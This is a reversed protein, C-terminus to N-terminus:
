RGGAPQAQAADIEERAAQLARTRTPSWTGGARARNEVIVNQGLARGPPEAILRALIDSTGGPANPVVVRLARDFAQARALAPPALLGAGALLNRRHLM